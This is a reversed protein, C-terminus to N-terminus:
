KVCTFLDRQGELGSRFIEAEFEATDIKLIFWENWSQNFLHLLDFTCGGDSIAADIHVCHLVDDRGQSAHSHVIGDDLHVGVFRRNDIATGLRKDLEDFLGADYLLGLWPMDKLDPLGDILFSPIPGDESDHRVLLEADGARVHSGVSPKGLEVRGLDGRLNVFFFDRRGAGKNIVFVNGREHLLPEDFTARQFSGDDDATFGEKGLLRQPELVLEDTVLNEVNNAIEHEGAAANEAVHNGNARSMTGVSLQSAGDIRLVVGHAGHHRWRHVDWTPIGNQVDILHHVDQRVAVGEEHHVPDDPEFSLGLATADFVDGDIFGVKLTVEGTVGDHRPHELKLGHSLYGTDYQEAHGAIRAFDAVEHARVVHLPALWDKGTVRQHDFRFHKLGLAADGRGLAAADDISLDNGLRVEHEAENVTSESYIARLVAAETEGMGMWGVAMM